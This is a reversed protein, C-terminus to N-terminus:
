RAPTTEPETVSLARSFEAAALAVRQPSLSIGHEKAMAITVRELRKLFNRFMQLPDRSIGEEFEKQEFKFQRFRSLAWGLLHLEPEIGKGEGNITRYQMKIQEIRVAWGPYLAGLMEPSVGGTWDPSLTTITRVKQNIAAILCMCCPGISSVLELDAKEEPPLEDGDPTNYDTIANVEAHGVHKLHNDPESVNNQGTGV